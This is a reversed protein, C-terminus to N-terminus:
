PKCQKKEFDWECGAPNGASIFRVLVRGKKPVTSVTMAKQIIADIQDALAALRVEDKSDAAQVEMNIDLGMPHYSNDCSNDEGYSSTQVTGSIAVAGFEQRVQDEFAKSGSGSSWTWACPGNSVIATATPSVPIRSCAIVAIAGFLIIPFLIQHPALKM